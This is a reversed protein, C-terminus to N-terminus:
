QFCRRMFMFPWFLGKGRFISRFDVSAAIMNRVFRRMHQVCTAGPLFIMISGCERKQMFLWKRM